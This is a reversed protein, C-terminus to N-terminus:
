RRCVAATVTATVSFAVTVLGTTTNILQPPIPIDKTTANTVTTTPNTAASGAATLSPDTWTLVTPSANGNVVKLYTREDVGQLTDSASVATMTPALGAPFNLQQPAPLLAM